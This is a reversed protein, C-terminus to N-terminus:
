ARFAQYSRTRLRAVALRANARLKAFLQATTAAKAVLTHSSAHDRHSPECLALAEIALLSLDVRVPQLYQHNSCPRVLVMRIHINAPQIPKDTTCM